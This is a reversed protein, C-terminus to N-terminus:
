TNVNIFNIADKLNRFRDNAYSDEDGKRFIDVEFSKGAKRIYIEHDKTLIETEKRKRLPSIKVCKGDVLAEGRKCKNPM